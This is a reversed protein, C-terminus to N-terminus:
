LQVLGWRLSGFVGCNLMIIAWKLDGRFLATLFGFFFTTWSLGVKVQKTLGGSNKLEAKM